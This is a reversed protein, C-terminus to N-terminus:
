TDLILHIYRQTEPPLCSLWQVGCRNLAGQLSGSGANYAALAQADNGGYRHVYSAMLGAAARLAAVPNWADIGLAAATGPLFQAIGEAGAPSLAQPNFGSEVNIQRVFLTPSIGAALADQAALAVYPSAPFASSAAVSSRPTVVASFGGWWALFQGRAIWTYNHASSDALHV